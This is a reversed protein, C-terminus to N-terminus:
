AEDGGGAAKLGGGGLRGQLQEVGQHVLRPDVFHAIHHAHAAASLLPGSFQKQVGVQVLDAKNDGAMLVAKEAEGRQSPHVGPHEGVPLQGNEGIGGGIPHHGTQGGVDLAPLIHILCDGDFVQKEVHTEGLLLGLAADGHAGWGDVAGAAAVQPVLEQAALGQVVPGAKGDQKRPLVWSSVWLVPAM